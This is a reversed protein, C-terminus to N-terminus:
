MTEKELENTIKIYASKLVALKMSQQERLIM